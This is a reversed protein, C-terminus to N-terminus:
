KDPWSINGQKDVVPIFRVPGGAGAVLKMIYGVVGEEIIYNGLTLASAYDPMGSKAENLVRIIKETVAPSQVTIANELDDRLVFDPRETGVKRGRMPTLATHAEFRVGSTTNFKEVRKLDKQAQTRPANFLQGFDEILLDNSQLETVLDFLINEANAKDYCDVNVYRRAGWHDTNEGNKALADIVVKRAAIWALGMSGAISTKASERYAIWAADKIRGYVLDEFDQYFDDHFRALRYRFYKSFYYVAFLKFSKACAYVREDRTGDVLLDIKDQTLKM